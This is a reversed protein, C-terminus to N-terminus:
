RRPEIKVDTELEWMGGGGGWCVCVKEERKETNVCSKSKHNGEWSINKRRKDLYKLFKDPM